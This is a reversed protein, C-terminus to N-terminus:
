GLNNKVAWASVEASNNANLKRMLSMKHTKITNESCDLLEAIERNSRGKAIHRVVEFERKTLRSTPFNKLYDEVEPHVYTHGDLILHLGKICDLVPSTKWVIGAVGLKLLEQLVVPDQTQTLVLVKTNSFESKLTRVVDLGSVKPLQIDMIAIAPKESRIRELAVEGDLADELLVFKDSHRQISHRLGELVLPHDEIIVIKHKQNESVM